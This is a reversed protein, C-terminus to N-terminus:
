RAFSPNFIPNQDAAERHRCAEEFVAGTEEPSGPNYIKLFILNTLFKRDPHDRPIRSVIEYGLFGQNRLEQIETAYHRELDCRDDFQDVASAGTSITMGALGALIFLRALFPM